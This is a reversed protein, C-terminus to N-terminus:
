AEVSAEMVRSHSQNSGRAVGAVLGLMGATIALDALNLVIPGVALFDHVAGTVLRDLLNAVAGGILLSPVWCAVEGRRACRVAFGGLGLVATGALVAILPSPPQAAGLALGPNAAPAIPGARGIAVALLKTVLDACGVVVALPVVRSRMWAAARM